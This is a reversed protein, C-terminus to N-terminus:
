SAQARLAPRHGALGRQVLLELIQV